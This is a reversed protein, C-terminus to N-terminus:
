FFSHLKSYIDDDTGRFINDMAAQILSHYCSSFREDDMSAFALSEAEVRFGGGIKWTVVKFGALVTLNKRFSDFQEPEDLYEWGEIDACWHEFCFNLFAFMKGHFKPNRTQKIEVEYCGDNKFRTMKAQEIDSQPVLAGGAQKIM